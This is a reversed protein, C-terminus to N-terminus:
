RQTPTASPINFTRQMRQPFDTMIGAAGVTDLAARMDGADNVVWLVVPHGRQRLHEFLARRWGLWVVWDIVLEAARQGIRASLQSVFLPRMQRTIYPIEVYQGHAVPLFPLLGTFFKLYILLVERPSCFLHWDFRKDAMRAALRSHMSGPLVVCCIVSSLWAVVTSHATVAPLICHSSNLHLSTYCTTTSM